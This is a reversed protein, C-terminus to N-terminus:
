HGRGEEDKTIKAKNGTVLVKVVERHWWLYISFPFIDCYKFYNKKKKIVFTTGGQPWAILNICAFLFLSFLAPCVVAVNKKKQLLFLVSYILQFIFYFISVFITNIIRSKDWPSIIVQFLTDRHLHCASDSPLGYVVKIDWQPFNMM